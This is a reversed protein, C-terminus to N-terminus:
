CRSLGVTYVAGGTCRKFRHVTGFITTNMNALVHGPLRMYISCGGFSAHLGPPPPRQTSENKKMSLSPSRAGGGGGGGLFFFFWETGQGKSFARFYISIIGLYLPTAGGGQAGTGRQIRAHKCM